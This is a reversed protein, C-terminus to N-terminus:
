ITNGAPEGILDVFETKVQASKYTMFTVKSRCFACKPGEWANCSKIIGKVCEKCVSHNCNFTIFQDNDQSNYCIDCDCTINETIEEIVVQSEITINRQINNYYQNNMLADGQARLLDLLATLNVHNNFLDDTFIIPITTTLDNNDNILEPLGYYEDFFYDVISDINAQIPDRTTSGCNRIAFAKVLTANELCYDIVWEKFARKPNLPQNDEFIEKQEECLNKFNQLRVDNCFTINHGPQRCFSCCRTLNRNRNVIIDTLYSERPATNILQEGSPLQNINASNRHENHEFSM